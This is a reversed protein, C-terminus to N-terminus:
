SGNGSALYDIPTAGLSVGSLGTTSQVDSRTTHIIRARQKMRYTKALAQLANTVNGRQVNQGDVTMNYRLVWQAAQRELLDAAGRYVDYLKGTIVIPPLTSVAFQFHGAIPEVFSPTVPTTLYQKLVYDDEWGGLKSFYDLFLISAGSFTAEPKLVGNYVDARSEDLVDQIDQDQFVPSGSTDSILLRVRAILAIMSTRVAM